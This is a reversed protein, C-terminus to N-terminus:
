SQLKLKNYKDIILLDSPKDYRLYVVKETPFLQKAINDKDPRLVIYIDNKINERKKKIYFFESLSGIRRKEPKIGKYVCYTNKIIEDM